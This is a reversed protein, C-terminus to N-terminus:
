WTKNSFILQGYSEPTHNNKGEPIFFLNRRYVDTKGGLRYLNFRWIDGPKPRNEQGLYYFVDFPISIEIIWWSDLDSDDNMTGKHSRGIQVRPPLWFTNLSDRDLAGPAAKLDEMKKELHLGCLISGLANIEFNSYIKPSSPFPSLFAEVCDDNYVDSNRQTRTASIHRDQSHFAIYINKDDWLMKATTIEDTEADRTPFVLLKGVPLADKWDKEDLDGDIIITGTTRRIVVTESTKETHPDCLLFLPLILLSLIMITKVNKM